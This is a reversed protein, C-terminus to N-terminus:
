RIVGGAAVWTAKDAPRVKEALLALDDLSLEYSLVLLSSTGNALVIVKSQPTDEPIVGGVSQWGDVTVASFDFGQQELETRSQEFTTAHGSIRVTQSENASTSREYEDYWDVAPREAAAAPDDSRPDIAEKFTWGPDALLAYHREADTRTSAPQAAKSGSACGSVLLVATACFLAVLTRTGRFTGV